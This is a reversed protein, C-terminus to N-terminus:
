TQERRRSRLWVPLMLAALLIIIGAGGIKMLNVAAMSYKGMHPDYKSCYWIMRDVLTGIKGETAENLALRFTKPEFMIGELYRSIKGKPTTVVAASAHSWEKAEENWKYQFGLQKTIQDITAQDATLFHWGKESGPRDYIKMYSAKKKKALDATERPDFSIALYQFKDGATWDVEKLSDIVGNLHFNCLGPCSYYVLSIVVPHTGDYYNALTVSEGNEDKFTLNLDVAEGLKETIGIGQLDRPIEKATLGASERPM